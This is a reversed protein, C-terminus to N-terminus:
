FLLMSKGVNGLAYILKIMKEIKYFIKCIFFTKAKVIIQAISINKVIDVMHLPDM